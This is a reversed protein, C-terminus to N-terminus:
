QSYGSQSKIFDYVRKDFSRTSSAAEVAAAVTMTM